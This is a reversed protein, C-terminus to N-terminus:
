LEDLIQERYPLPAQWGLIGVMDLMAGSRSRIRIALPLQPVPYHDSDDFEGADPRGDPPWQDYWVRDSGLYSFTAPGDFTALIASTGGESYQLTKDDDVLDLAFPKLGEQFSIQSSTTLGSMHAPEGTFVREEKWGPVIRHTIDDFALSRVRREVAEQSTQDIRRTLEYQNSVASFLLLSTVSILALAVLVEVLSFGSMSHESKGQVFEAMQMGSDEDPDSTVKQLCKM